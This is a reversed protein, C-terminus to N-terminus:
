FVATLPLGLISASFWSMAVEAASARKVTSSPAWARSLVDAYGDDFTLLVARKPLGGELRDTLEDLSLVPYRRALAALQDDFREPSVCLGFPDDPEDAVRHYLLVAVAPRFRALWVRARRVARTARNGIM